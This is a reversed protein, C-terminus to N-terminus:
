RSNLWLLFVATIKIKPDKCQLKLCMPTSNNHNPAKYVFKLKIHLNSSSIVHCLFFLFWVLLSQGQTWGLSCSLMVCHYVTNTHITTVENVDNHQQEPDAETTLGCTQSTNCKNAESVRLDPTSRMNLFPCTLLSATYKEQPNEFTTNSFTTTAKFDYFYTFELVPVDVNFFFIFMKFIIYQLLM